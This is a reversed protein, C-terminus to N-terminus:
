QLHQPEVGHADVEAPVALSPKVRQRDLFGQVAVPDVRLVRGVRVAELRGDHILRRITEPHVGLQHAVQRVSFLGDRSDGFSAVFSMKPAARRMQM